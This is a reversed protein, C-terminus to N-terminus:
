RASENPKKWDVEKIVECSMVCGTPIVIWDSVGQADESCLLAVKTYEKNEELLFGCAYCIKCPATDLSDLLKWQNFTTPDQFKVVVVQM